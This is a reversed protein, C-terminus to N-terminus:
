LGENKQPIEDPRAKRIEPNGPRPGSPSLYLKTEKISPSKITGDPQTNSVTNTKQYFTLGLDGHDQDHLCEVVFSTSPFDKQLKLKWIETLTKALIASKEEGDDIESFFDGVTLINMWYEPNTNECILRDSEEKSYTEKLFIYKGDKIFTPWFIELFDFFIDANINKDQILWYLVTYVSPSKYEKNM